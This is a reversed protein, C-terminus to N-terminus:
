VSRNMLKLIAATHNMTDRIHLPTMVVGSDSALDEMRLRKSGRVPDPTQVAAKGRDNISVSSQNATNSAM